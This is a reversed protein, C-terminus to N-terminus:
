APVVPWNYPAGYVALLVDKTPWEVVAVGKTECAECEPIYAFHGPEIGYGLQEGCEECLLEVTYSACAM